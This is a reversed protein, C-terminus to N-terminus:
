ISKKQANKFESMSKYSKDDILYDIYPKHINLTHYLVGWIKLQKRTEELINGRQRGRGTWIMIYNGENYLENVIKIAEINPKAKKYEDHLDELTLVGDIDVGIIKKHKKKKMAKIKM